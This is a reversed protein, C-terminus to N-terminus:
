FLIDDPSLSRGTRIEHDKVYNYLQYDLSNFIKFREIEEQSLFCEPDNFEPREASHLRENEVVHKDLVINTKKIKNLSAELENLLYTRNELTSLKINRKKIIQLIEQFSIRDEELNCNYFENGQINSWFTKVKDSEKKMHEWDYNGLLYLCQTNCMKGLLFDKIEYIKNNTWDSHSVNNNNYCFESISRELPNRIISFTELNENYPEIYPNSFHHGYFFDVNLHCEKLFSQYNTKDIKKNFFPDFQEIYPKPLIRLEKCFANYVANSVSTGSTRPVHSFYIM